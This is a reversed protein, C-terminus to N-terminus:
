LRDIWDEGLMKTQHAKYIGWFSEEDFEQSLFTKFKAKHRKIMPMLDQAEIDYSDGLILSRLDITDRAIANYGMGLEPRMVEELLTDHWRTACTKLKPSGSKLLEDTLRIFGIYNSIGYPSEKNYLKMYEQARERFFKINNKLIDGTKEPGAVEIMKTVIAVTSDLLNKTGRNWRKNLAHWGSNSWHKFISEARSLLTQNQSWKALHMLHPLFALGNYFNLHRDISYRGFPTSMRRAFSNIIEIGEDNELVRTEINALQALALELNGFHTYTKFLDFGLREDYRCLSLFESAEQVCARAQDAQEITSCVLEKSEVSTCFQESIKAPMTSLDEVSPFETKLQAQQATTTNLYTSSVHKALLVAVYADVSGNVQSAQVIRNLIKIKEPGSLSEYTGFKKLVMIVNALIGSVIPASFSTGSIFQGPTPQGDFNDCSEVRERSPLDDSKLTFIMGGPATVEGLTSFEALYGGPALAAVRLLADESDWEPPITTKYSDNGASKVVLCGKEKLYRYLDADVVENPKTGTEDYTSGWSVNIIEHGDDCAMKITKNLARPSARGTDGPATIRYSTLEAMPAIGIDDYGGIVGAVATGHGNEDTGPEGIKDEDFFGKKVKLNPSLMMSANGKLDFGSDIVAVKSSGAQIGYEKLLQLARPNNVSMQAWLKTQQNNKCVPFMPKLLLKSYRDNEEIIKLFQRFPEDSPNIFKEDSYAVVLPILDELGFGKLDAELFNSVSQSLTAICAQLKQDLEKRKNEKVEQSIRKKDIDAYAKLFIETSEVQMSLFVPYSSPKVSSCNIFQSLDLGFSDLQLDPIKIEEAQIDVRRKEEPNSEKTKNKGCSAAGITLLMFTMLHTLM